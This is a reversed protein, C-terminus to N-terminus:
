SLLEAKLVPRLRNTQSIAFWDDITMDLLVMTTAGETIEFHIIVDLHGPPVKLPDVWTGDAYTANATEITMRLKKYAGVDESVPIEMDSLVMTRDELSLLDFYVETADNIFSLAISDGVNETIAALSSITINLHKLEVPADTLLIVLRGTRASVLGPFSIGSVFIGAIIIASILVGAGAYLGIKRPEIAM